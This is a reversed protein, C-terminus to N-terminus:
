IISISQTNLLVKIIECIINMMTINFTRSFYGADFFSLLPPLFFFSLPLSFLHRLLLLRRCLLLFQLNLTKSAVCLSCFQRFEREEGGRGKMMRGKKPSRERKERCATVYRTYSRLLVELVCTYIHIYRHIQPVVKTLSAGNSFLVCM